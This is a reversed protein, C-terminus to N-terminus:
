CQHFFCLLHAHTSSTKVLFFFVLFALFLCFFCLTNLFFAFQSLCCLRSMVFGLLNVSVYFFLLLHFSILFSKTIFLLPLPSLSHVPPSPRLLLDCLPTSQTCATQTPPPPCFRCLFSLSYTSHIVLPSISSLFIYSVFSTNTQLSSSTLSRSEQNQVDLLFPLSPFYLDRSM